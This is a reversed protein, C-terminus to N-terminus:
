WAIDTLSLIVFSSHTKILSQLKAKTQIIELAVDNLPIFSSKRIRKTRQCIIVDSVHCIQQVPKELTLTPKM